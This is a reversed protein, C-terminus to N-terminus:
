AACDNDGLLTLESCLTTSNDSDPDNCNEICENDYVTGNASCVPVLDDPCANM